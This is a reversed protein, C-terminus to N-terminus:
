SVANHEDELDKKNNYGTIKTYLRHIFTKLEFAKKTEDIKKEDNDIDLPEFLGFLSQM